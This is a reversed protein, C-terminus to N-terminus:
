YDNSVATVRVISVELLANLDKAATFTVLDETGNVEYYVLAAYKTAKSTKKLVSVISSM